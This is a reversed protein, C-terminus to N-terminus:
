NGSSALIAELEERRERITSGLKQDGYGADHIEQEIQRYAQLGAQDGDKFLFVLTTLADSNEM